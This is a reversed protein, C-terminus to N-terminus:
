IVNHLSKDSRREIEEDSVIIKGEIECITELLGAM